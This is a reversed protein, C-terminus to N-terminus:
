RFTRPPQGIQEGVPAVQVPGRLDQAGAGVGAVPVDDGIFKKAQQDFLTPM